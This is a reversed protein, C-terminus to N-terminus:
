NTLAPFRLRISLIYLTADLTGTTSFTLRLWQVDGIGNNDGAHFFPRRRGDSGLDLDGSTFTCQRMCILAQAAPVALTGSFSQVTPTTWSSPAQLVEAKVTLTVATGSRRLMTVDIDFAHRWRPVGHVYFSVSGLDGTGTTCAICGISDTGTVVPSTAGSVTSFKGTTTAVNLSPYLTCRVEADPLVESNGGAVGAYATAPYM